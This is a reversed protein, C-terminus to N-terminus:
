VEPKRAGDASRRTTWYLWVMWITLAVAVFLVDGWGASDNPNVGRSPRWLVEMADHATHMGIAAALSGSRVCAVGFVLGFLVIATYAAVNGRHVVTFLVTSIAVAVWPMKVWAGVRTMLYGRFLVEETMRGVAMGGMAAAFLVPWWGLPVERARAVLGAWGGPVVVVGVVWLVCWVIASQVAMGWGFARGDTFVRGVPRGHVLRVGALCGALGAGSIVVVGLFSVMDQVYVPQTQVASKLGGIMIVTWVIMGGVFGVTSLVVTLLFRWWGGREGSWVEPWNWQM